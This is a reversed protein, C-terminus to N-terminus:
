NEFLSSVAYHAAVEPLDVMAPKVWKLYIDRGNGHEALNSRAHQLMELFGPEIRTRTIQEALQLARAAYCIVQVTEIGTLEAVVRGYSSAKLSAHRQNQLLHFDRIEPDMGFHNLAHEAFFQSRREPSRDLIVHIYADRAAWPSKFLKRGEEEFIAALKERLW